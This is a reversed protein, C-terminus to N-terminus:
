ASENCLPVCFVPLCLLLPSFKHLAKHLDLRGVTESDLSFFKREHCQLGTQDCIEDYIVFLSWICIVAYSESECNKWKRLISICVYQVYMCVVYMCVTVVVKGGSDANCPKSSSSHAERCSVGRM